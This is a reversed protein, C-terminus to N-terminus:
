EEEIIGKRGFPKELDERERSANRGVNRRPKVSRGKKAAKRKM